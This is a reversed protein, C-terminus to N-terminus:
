DVLTGRMTTIARGGIRVAYRGEGQVQV